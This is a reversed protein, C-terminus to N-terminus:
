NTLDLRITLEKNIWTEPFYQRTQVSDVDPEPEDEFILEEEFSRARALMGM